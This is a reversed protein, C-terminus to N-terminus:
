FSCLLSIRKWPHEQLVILTIHVRHVRTQLGVEEEEGADVQDEEGEVM